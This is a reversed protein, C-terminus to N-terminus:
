QRRRRRVYAAVGGVAMLMGAMTMPEPVPVLVPVPSASLGSDQVTARGVQWSPANTVAYFWTTTEGVPLLQENRGSPAKSAQFEFELQKGNAPRGLTLVDYEAYDADGGPHWVGVDIFEWGAAFGAINGSRIPDPGYNTIQYLFLTNGDTSSKYVRSCIDVTLDDEFHADLSAMLQWEAPLSTETYVNFKLTGSLGLDSDPHVRITAAPADAGPTVLVSLAQAPGALALVLGVAALAVLAPGCDWRGPLSPRKCRM